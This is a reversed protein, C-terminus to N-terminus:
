SAASCCGAPTTAAPPSAGGGTWGTVGTSRGAGARDARLLLVDPHRPRRGLRGGPGAAPVPRAALPARRRGVRGLRDIRLRQRDAPRRHLVHGSGGGPRRLRGAPAAPLVRDRGAGQGVRGAGGPRGRGGPRAAPAGPAPRHGRSGRGASRDQRRDSTAMHGLSSCTRTKPYPDPESWRRPRAAPWTRARSASGPVPPGNRSPPGCATCANPVLSTTKASEPPASCTRSAYQRCMPPSRLRPVTLPSAM